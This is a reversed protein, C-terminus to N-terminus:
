KSQSFIPDSIKWHPNGYCINLHQIMTNDIEDGISQDPDYPSTLSSFEAYDRYMCSGIKINGTSTTVHYIDGKYLRSPLNPILHVLTWDNQYFIFQDASVWVEKVQYLRFIGSTCMTGTIIGDHESIDGIRCEELPLVMIKEHRSITLLTSPLFGMSYHNNQTLSESNSEMAYCRSPSLANWIIKKMWTDIAPSSDEIYDRFLHHQCIMEHHVTNLCHLIGQYKHKKIAQNSNQVRVWQGNESVVHDGSVLCGSYSYIYDDYAFQMTAIVKGGNAVYEGGKIQCIPKFSGDNMTVLTEPPFCALSGVPGSLLSEFTMAGTYMMYIIATIMGFLQGFVNTLKNFIYQVSGFVNNVTEMLGGM